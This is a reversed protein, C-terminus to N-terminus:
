LNIEFLSADSGQYAQYLSKVFHLMQKYAEGSLGLNFAIRRCQFDQIGVRPDIEETFIQEPTELAVAEIDM